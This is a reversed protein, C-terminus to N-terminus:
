GCTSPNNQRLLEAEDNLQNILSSVEEDPQAKLRQDLVALVALLRPTGCYAVAGHLKHIGAYRETHHHQLHHENITNLENGLSKILLHIMDKGLDERNGALRRNAEWDIVPLHDVKVHM